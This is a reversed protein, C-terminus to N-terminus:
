VSVDQKQEWPFPDPVSNEKELRRAQDEISLRRPVKFKPGLPAGAYLPRQRSLELLRDTLARNASKLEENEKELLAIYKGDFIM